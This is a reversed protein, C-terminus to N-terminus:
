VAKSAEVLLVTYASSELNRTKRNWLHLVLFCCEVVSCCNHQINVLPYAKFLHKDGFNNVMLTEFLLIFGSCKLVPTDLLQVTTTSLARKAKSILPLHVQNWCTEVLAVTTKVVSAM